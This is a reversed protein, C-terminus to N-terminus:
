DQIQVGDVWRKEGGSLVEKKWIPAFTKIQDIAFRAAEFAEARHESSVAVAVSIEGIRLMGERHVMAIKKVQWRAMIEKEVEALRKETMNRYTEYELGKVAKGESRNRVTGLFLVLGGASDDSVSELVKAPDIKDATIHFGQSGKSALRGASPKSKM